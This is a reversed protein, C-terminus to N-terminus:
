KKKHLSAGILLSDDLVTTLRELAAGSQMYSNGPDFGLDPRGVQRSKTNKRPKRVGGCRSIGM